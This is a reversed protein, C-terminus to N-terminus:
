THSVINSTISFGFYTVDMAEGVKDRWGMIRACFVVLNALYLKLKTFERQRNKTVKKDKKYRSTSKM